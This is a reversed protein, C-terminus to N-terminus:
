NSRSSDEESNRAEGAIAMRVPPPLLMGSPFHELSVPHDQFPASLDTLVPNRSYQADTFLCLDALGYKEVLEKCASISPMGSRSAFYSHLMLHMVLYLGVGMAALFVDSKRAAM